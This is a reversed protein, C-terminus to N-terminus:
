LTSTFTHSATYKCNWDHFSHHVHSQGQRFFNQFGVQNLAFHYLTRFDSDANILSQCLIGGTRHCIQFKLCHTHRPYACFAANSINVVIRELVAKFICIIVAKDATYCLLVANIKRTRAVADAMLYMQLTEANRSLGQDTRVAM